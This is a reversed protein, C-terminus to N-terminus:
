AGSAGPRFIVEATFEGLGRLPNSDLFIASQGDFETWKQGTAEVLRPSGVITTQHGGIEDLRNLLWDVAAGPETAMSYGGGAVLVLLCSWYLATGGKKQGSWTDSVRANM